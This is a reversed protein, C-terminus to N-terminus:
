EGGEAFRQEALGGRNQPVHGAGFRRDGGQLVAHAAPQADARDGRNEGEEKRRTEAFKALQLRVDLDDETLIHGSPQHFANLGALQIDRERTQRQLIWVDHAALKEALMKGSTAEPNPTLRTGDM